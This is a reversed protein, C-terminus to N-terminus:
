PKWHLPFTMICRMGDRPFALEITGQLEYEISRKIFSSGFGDKVQTEIPPGDREAWTLTLQKDAAKDEIRWDVQVRGAPVSLAGYKAANSTLEYIALGLTAAAGPNLLCAAGDLTVNDRKLSTYPAMIATILTRLDAGEWRQASLLEHTTAMARLRALFSAVFDEISGSTRLMRAALSSVTALVNKVRHQLELLLEQQQAEARKHQSIDAFAAIAGRVKDAEDFLPTASLMVDVADGGPRLLRGEFGPVSEGSHMARQLPQQEALLERGGDFLRITGAVQRLGKGKDDEGLLRAGYRNVRIEQTGGGDELILIAVPVLDLLTELNEIRDRLDHTLEDIRTEAVTIRTIDTFTLVVGAIVNDVTRYPLIRMLYYGDGDISRVYREITGLTRLVKEIDQQVTDVAFRARVHAIPRDVDSEVLRFLVKAAPTFSKISFERDLFVAAIQTNELLNKIDSNSRSLEEVRNNLEANVTHLEENVSQLEQRSTELEENSSQM